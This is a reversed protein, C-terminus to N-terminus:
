SEETGSRQGVIGMLMANFLEVGGGGGGFSAVNEQGMQNELMCNHFWLAAQQLRINSRHELQSNVVMEICTLSSLIDRVKTTACLDALVNCAQIQIGADGYHERMTAAIAELVEFKLLIDHSSSSLSQSTLLRLWALCNRQVKPSQIHNQMGLVVVGLVELGALHETDAASISRGSSLICVCNGFVSPNEIYRSMTQSITKIGEGNSLFDDISRQGGTHILWCLAAAGNCQVMQGDAHQHMAKLILSVGGDRIVADKTNGDEVLWSLLSLGIQQICSDKVHKELIQLLTAIFQPNQSIYSREKPCCVVLVRLLDLGLIQLALSKPHRDLARPLMRGAGRNSIVQVKRADMKAWQRLTRCGEIQLTTDYPHQEMASMIAGVFGIMAYDMTSSACVRRLARIGTLQLNLDSKRKSLVGIIVETMFPSHVIDEIAHGVASFRSLFCLPHELINASASTEGRDPTCYSSPAGRRKRPQREEGHGTTWARKRWHRGGEDSGDPMSGPISKALDKDSALHDM